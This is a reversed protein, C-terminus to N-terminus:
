FRKCQQVRQLVDLLRETALLEYVLARAVNIKVDKKVVADCQIMLSELDGVNADGLPFKDEAGQGLAGGKTSM